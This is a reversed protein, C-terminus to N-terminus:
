QQACQVGGRGQGGEEDDEDDSSPRRAGRSRQENLNVKTLEAEETVEVKPLQRRPPLLKELQQLQNPQLSGHKPFEVTFTIYLNGKEYPKKHIPMGEGGIMRVDGPNIVEGKESKVLLVRDDLHKIHLQFGGLAEILPISVEMFLDNGQRKFLDHKKEVLVFIVDGPEMGPAEDSEGSFVVKQGHRMGKEVYVNLVKKEKIVKKGKCEKCKDEEKIVEGKGGCDGCVTQMQQIMGPGLQKIILRIGRGDCTKCKASSGGSKTGNGTCTSCIVNRTVSLKSTKGKYLDELSVQLEHAIDETRRPGGRGGGGFFSSFGGGGGGFFQEFIDHASHAGFGGERLGEKGYKDYMQRKNEDALVEYAESVEKFKEVAEPNNPNKDPHYKIAMKKYAKKVDDVKADPTVGLRDYFETEKVM